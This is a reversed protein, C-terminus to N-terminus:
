YRVHGRETGCERTECFRRYATDTGEEFRPVTGYARETGYLHRPAHRVAIETGSKALTGYEVDSGSKAHAPVQSGAPRDYSCAIDSGRVLQTSLMGLQEALKQLDIKAEQDERM